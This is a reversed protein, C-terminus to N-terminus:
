EYFCLNILVLHYVKGNRSWFKFHSTPNLFHSTPIWLHSILISFHSVPNKFIADWKVYSMQSTPLPVSILIGMKLLRGETRAPLGRVRGRRGQHAADEAQPLAAATGQGDEQTDIRYFM